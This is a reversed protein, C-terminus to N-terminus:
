DNKMTNVKVLELIKEKCAEASPRPADNDIIKGQQDVIMYRPIGRSSFKSEISASQPFNMFYHEGKLQNEAIIVKARDNNFNDQSCLFVFVVNKDKLEEQLRKSHPMEAICPGCWTAWNDIYIVQGKYQQLLHEFLTSTLTDQRYDYINIGELSSLKEAQQVVETLRRDANKRFLPHAVYSLLEKKEKTFNALDDKSFAYIFHTVLIDTGIGAIGSKLKRIYSNYFQSWNHGYSKLEDTFLHEISSLYVLYNFYFTYLETCSLPDIKQITNQPFFDWYAQDTIEKRHKWGFRFQANAARYKIFNQFWSMVQLSCPVM